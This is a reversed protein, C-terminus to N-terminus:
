WCTSPYNADELRTVEAFLGSDRSLASFHLSPGLAITILGGLERALDSKFAAEFASREGYGGYNTTLTIQPCRYFRWSARSSSARARAWSIGSLQM